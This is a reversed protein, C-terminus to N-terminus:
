TPYSSHKHSTDYDEELSKEVILNGSDDTINSSKITDDQREGVVMWSITDTSSSDQATITLLNGSVSGKVASWGTENTTFCQVDRNLAVFTGDSMGSVTDINVTASGSSLTVKGRYILDLQPGEISAHVLKKTSTLSSLPHPISFNKSSGTISGQAHINANPGGTATLRLTGAHTGHEHTVSSYNVTSNFTVQEFLQPHIAIKHNSSQSGNAGGSRRIYLDYNQNADSIIKIATQTYDLSRSTVFIDQYHGVQIDFEANTVVNSITSTCSMKIHTRFSPGTVTAFKVYTQANALVETFYVRSAYTNENQQPFIIEKFNSAQLRAREAGSSTGGVYFQMGVSGGGGRYNIMAQNGAASKWIIAAIDGGTSQRYMAISPNNDTTERVVLTSAPNNDNIGLYGNTGKLTLREVNNGAGGMKFRLHNDGSFDYQISGRQFSGADGFRIIASEATNATTQLYLSPTQQHSRINGFVDLPHAPSTSNIGVKGTSTIRLKETENGSLRTHFTLAGNTGDWVHSM